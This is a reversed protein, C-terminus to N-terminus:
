ELVESLKQYLEEQTKRSSNEIDSLKSELDEVKAQLEQIQMQQEKIIDNKERMKEQIMGIIEENSPPTMKKPGKRSKGRSKKSNRHGRRSSERASDM